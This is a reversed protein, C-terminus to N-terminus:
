IQIQTKPVPTVLVFAEVGGRASALQESHSELDKVIAQRLQDPRASANLLVNEIINALCNVSM